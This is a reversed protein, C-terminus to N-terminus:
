PVIGPGLLAPRITERAGALGDALEALFTRGEPSDWAQHHFMLGVPGPFRSAMAIEALVDSARRPRPAGDDVAVAISIERIRAEPRWDPHWTIGRNGIFGLGLTRAVRYVVRRPTDRYSAASLVEFGSEALARVTDANFRHRPPTFVTGDFADGLMRELVERGQRIVRLQTAYDREGGFEWSLRRGGITMGHELGHQGFGFLDPEEGHLAKLRAACDDTLLAPIIQYSVPLQRSRFIEIFTALAPTWAGVDDDRLFLTVTGGGEM